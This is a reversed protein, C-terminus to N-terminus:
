RRSGRAISEASKDFRCSGYQGEWEGELFAYVLTDLTVRTNAIRAVGNADMRIPLPDSAVVLSM